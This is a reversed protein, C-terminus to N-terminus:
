LCLERFLCRLIPDKQVLPMGNDWVGLAAVFYLGCPDVDALESSYWMLVCIRLQCVRAQRRVGM